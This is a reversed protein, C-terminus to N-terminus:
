NKQYQNHFHYYGLLSNRFDDTLLTRTEDPKWVAFMIHPYRTSLGYMMEVVEMDPERNGLVVPEIHITCRPLLEFISTFEPCLTVLQVFGFMHLWFYFDRADPDGTMIDLFESAMAKVRPHRFHDDMTLDFLLTQVRHKVGFTASFEHHLALLRSCPRLPKFEVEDNHYANLM